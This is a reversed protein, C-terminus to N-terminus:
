RTLDLTHTLPVIWLIIMGQMDEFLDKFRDVSCDLQGLDNLYRVVISKYSRQVLQNLWFQDIKHFNEIQVGFKKYIRFIIKVHSKM